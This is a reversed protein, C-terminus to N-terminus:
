ILLGGDFSHRMKLYCRLCVLVDMMSNHLGDPTEGFLAFYLESLKPWKKFPKKEPVNQELVDMLLPHMSSTTDIINNNMIPLIIDCFNTGRKMTCFREIRNVKEYITNFITSCYPMKKMLEERNREIEYLVMQIDFDINHAVIEDCWFYANYFEDLVDLIDMGRDCKERTAGTLGKIFDSIEINQPINVYSDFKKIIRRDQLDYIVFSLQIIHPQQDLPANKNLKGTTEVDFVMFRRKYKPANIVRTAMTTKQHFSFGM